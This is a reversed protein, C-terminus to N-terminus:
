ERYQDAVRCDEDFEVVLTEGELTISVRASVPDTERLDIQCIDTNSLSEAGFVIAGAEYGHENYFARVSPTGAVLVRLPPTFEYWCRSCSVETWCHFGSVEDLGDVEVPYDVTTRGWCRPCIGQRALNVGSITRKSVVDALEELSRGSYAGPPTPYGLMVDHEECELFLLDDEYRIRLQRECEPCAWPSEATHEGVDEGYTGAHVASVVALGSPRIRYTGDKKDIFGDSLKDLHYNFRGSDEVGVRKRLESFPLGDGVEEALELLIELRTENGLISFADDPSGLYDAENEGASHETM